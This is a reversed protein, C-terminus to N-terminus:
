VPWSEPRSLGFLAHAREATTEAVMEPSIGRIQAVADRVLVLDTPVGTRREPAQDPADTELVFCDLPLEVVTRRLKERSDKTVGTGVGLM